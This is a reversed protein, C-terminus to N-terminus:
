NGWLPQQRERVSKKLGHAGANILLAGTREAEEDAVHIRLDAKGSHYVPMGLIDGTFLVRSGLPSRWQGVGGQPLGVPEGPYLVRATYPADGPLGDRPSMYDMAFGPISRRLRSLALEAQDVNEFSAEITTMMEEWIM